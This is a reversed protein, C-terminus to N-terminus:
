RSGARDVKDFQQWKFAFRVILSFYVHFINPLVKLLFSRSSERGGAKGSERETEKITFLFQTTDSCLRQLNGFQKVFKVAM